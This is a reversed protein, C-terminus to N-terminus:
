RNTEASVDFGERGHKSLHSAVYTRALIAQVDFIKAVTAPSENIPAVEALISGLVYDDLAVSVINGATRVRVTEPLTLAAAPASTRPKPGCAAALALLALTGIRRAMDWTDTTCM